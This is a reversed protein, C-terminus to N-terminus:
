KSGLRCWMQDDIGRALVGVIYIYLFIFVRINGDYKVVM